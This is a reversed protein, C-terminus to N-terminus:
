KLCRCMFEYLSQVDFPWELELSKDHSLLVPIRAGYRDILADDDAIDVSELKFFLPKGDSDFSSAAFNEAMQVHLAQAVALAEDCLHCGLTSYLYFVPCTNLKFSKKFI